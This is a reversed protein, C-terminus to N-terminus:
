RQLTIYNYNVSSNSAEQFGPGHSYRGYLKITNRTTLIIIPLDDANYTNRPLEPGPGPQLNSTPRGQRRQTITRPGRGAAETADTRRRRWDCTRNASGLRDSDSDSDGTETPQPCNSCLRRCNVETETLVCPFLLALQKTRCSRFVCCTLPAGMNRAKGSSIPM